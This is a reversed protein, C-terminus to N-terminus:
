LWVSHFKSKDSEQPDVKNQNPLATLSFANLVLLLLEENVIKLNDENTQRIENKSNEHALTQSLESAPTICKRYGDQIICGCKGKESEKARSQKPQLSSYYAVVNYYSLSGCVLHM